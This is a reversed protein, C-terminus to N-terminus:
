IVIFSRHAAKDTRRVFIVRSPCRCVRSLIPSFSRSSCFTGVLALVPRTTTGSQCVDATHTRPQGATTNGRLGYRGRDGGDESAIPVAFARTV